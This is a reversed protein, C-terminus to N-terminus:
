SKFFIKWSFLVTNTQIRILGSRPGFQKCFQKSIKFKWGHLLCLTYFCCYGHTPRSLENLDDPLGQKRLFDLFAGYVNATQLLQLQWKLGYLALWSQLLCCIKRSRELNWFFLTHFKKLITQRCVIRMFYWAKNTIKSFTAFNWFTKQQM